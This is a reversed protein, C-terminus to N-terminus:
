CIDKSMKWSKNNCWLQWDCHYLATPHRNKICKHWTMGRTSLFFNEFFDGPPENHKQHMDKGSPSENEVLTYFPVGKGENLWEKMWLQSFLCPFSWGYDAWHVCLFCEVHICIPCSWICLLLSIRKQLVVPFQVQSLGAFLQLLNCSTNSPFLAFNQCTSKSFCKSAGCCEWNLTQLYSSFFFCCFQSDLRSWHYSLLCKHEQIHVYRECFKGLFKASHKLNKGQTCLFLWWLAKKPVSQLNHASCEESWAWGVSFMWPLSFLFSQLIQAIFTLM